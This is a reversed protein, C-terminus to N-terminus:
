ALSCRQSSVMPQDAGCGFLAAFRPSNMAAANCQLRAWRQGSSLFPDEERECLYGCYREFFARETASDAVSVAGRSFLPLRGVSQRLYEEAVQFAAVTFLLPEKEGETQLADMDTVNLHRLSEDLCEGFRALTAKGPSVQPQGGAGTASCNDGRVACHEHGVAELAKAIVAVGLTAANLSHPPGHCFFPARLYRRSLTVTAEEDEVLALDTLSSLDSLRLKYLTAYHMRLELLNRYLSTPRLTYMVARISPSSLNASSPPLVNLTYIRSTNEAKNSSGNSSTRPTLWQQMTLAMPRIFALADNTVDTPSILGSELQDWIDGLVHRTLGFCVNQSRRHMYAVLMEEPLLIYTLIYVAAETRKMRFFLATLARELNEISSVQVTYNKSSYVLPSGGFAIYWDDPSLPSGAQVGSLTKLSVRKSRRTSDWTRWLDNDITLLNGVDIKKDYKDVELIGAVTGFVSSLTVNDLFSSLPRRVDLFLGSEADAAFFIYTPVGREASLIAQFQVLRSPTNLGRLMGKTVTRVADFFEDAREKNLPVTDSSVFYLCSKYLAAVAAATDQTRRSGKSTEYNQEQISEALAAVRLELPRPAPRRKKCVFAHFDRCADEAEGAATQEGIRRPELECRLSLQRLQFATIGAHDAADHSRFWLFLTLTVVAVVVITAFVCAARSSGGQLPGHGFRSSEQSPSLLGGHSPSAPSWPHMDSLNQRRLSRM